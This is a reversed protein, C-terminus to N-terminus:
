VGEADMVEGVASISLATQGGMQVLIAGDIKTWSHEGALRLESIAVGLPTDAPTGKEPLLVFVCEGADSKFSPSGLM